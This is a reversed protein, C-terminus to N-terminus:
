SIQILSIQFYKSPVARLVSKIGAGVGMRQYEERPVVVIGQSAQQLGRTLSQYAQYLGDKLGPPPNSLKSYSRRRQQQQHQQESATQPKPQRRRSSNSRNNNNNNHNSDNDGEFFNDISELITQTGSTIKSTVSM